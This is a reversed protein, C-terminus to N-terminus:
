GPVLEKLSAAHGLEISHKALVDGVEAPRRFECLFLQRLLGVIRNIKNPQNFPTDIGRRNRTEFIYRIHDTYLNPLQKIGICRIALSGSRAFLRVGSAPCPFSLCSSETILFCSLAFCASNSM